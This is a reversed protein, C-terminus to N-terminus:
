SPAETGLPPEPSTEDRPTALDVEALRDLREAEAFLERVLDRAKVASAVWQDMDRKAEADQLSDALLSGLTLLPVLTNNLQHAIARVGSQRDGDPGAADTLDLEENRHM